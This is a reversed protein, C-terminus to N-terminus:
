IRDGRDSRPGVGECGGYKRYVRLLDARSCTAIRLEDPMKPVPFPASKVKHWLTRARRTLEMLRRLQRPTGVIVSRDRGEADTYWFMLQYGHTVLHRMKKIERGQFYMLSLLRKGVAEGQQDSLTMTATVSFGRRGGDAKDNWTPAGSLGTRHMDAPNLEQVGGEPMTGIYLTSGIGSYGERCEEGAPMGNLSPCSCRGNNNNVQQKM